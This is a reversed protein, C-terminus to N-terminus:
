GRTTEERTGIIMIHDAYTHVTVTHDDPVLAAAGVLREASVPRELRVTYRSSVTIEPVPSCTCEEEDAPELQAPYFWLVHPAEAEDSASITVCYPMASGDDGVLNGTRGHFVTEPDTVTVKSGVKLRAPTPADPETTPFQVDVAKVWVSQGGEPGPVEIEGDPDPGIDRARVWGTECYGGTATRTGEPVFVLGGRTVTDGPQYPRPYLATTEFKM